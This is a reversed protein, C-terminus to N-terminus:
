SCTTVLNLTPDCRIHCFSVGREPHVPESGTMLHGRHFVITGDPNDTRHPINKLSWSGGAGTTYNIPTFSLPGVNSIPAPIRSTFVTQDFIHSTTHTANTYASRLISKEGVTASADVYPYVETYTGGACTYRIAADDLVHLFGRYTRRDHGITELLMSPSAYRIDQRIDDNQRILDDSTESETFLTLVPAGDAQGIASINAGNRRLLTKYKNLIGQTLKGAACTGSISNFSTGTGEALSSALVVVKTGSLRLYEHRYRFEWETMAYGALQEVIRELQSAAEYRTRIDTVCFSPGELFMQQLNWERATSGATVAKPTPLCSGAVGPLTAFTDTWGSYDEPARPEFTINKVPNGIGDTWGNKKVFAIWPSRPFMRKYIEDSFRGTESQLFETITDAAM